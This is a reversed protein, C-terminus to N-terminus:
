LRTGINFQFTRTKDHDMKNIPSAWSFSLPGIATSWYFGLGLSARVDNADAETVNTPYDTGWLSGFDSFVTWRVGTDKNLGLSSLVEVRGSYMTNGGVSDGAIALRTPDVNLQESHDAVYRTVAYDQEIAIPYRAEPSREYDVFM